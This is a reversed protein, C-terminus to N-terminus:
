WHWFPRGDGAGHLAWAVPDRLSALSEALEQPLAEGPRSWFARLFAENVGDLGIALECRAGEGNVTVVFLTDENPATAGREEDKM